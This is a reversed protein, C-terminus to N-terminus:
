CSLAAQPQAGMLGFVHKRSGGTLVDSPCDAAPDPIEDAEKGVNVGAPTADPCPGM